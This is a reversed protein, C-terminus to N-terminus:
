TLAVRVHEAQGSISLKCTSGARTPRAQESVCLNRIFRASISLRCLSAARVHETQMLVLGSISLKCLSAARVPEAQGSTSRKCLSGTRIHEAQMLVWDQHARSAYPDLGSTSRKCLSGADVSWSALSVFALVVCSWVTSQKDTVSSPCVRLWLDLQLPQADATEM